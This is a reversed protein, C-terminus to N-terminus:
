KRVLEIFFAAGELARVVVLVEVAGDNETFAAGCAGVCVHYRVM